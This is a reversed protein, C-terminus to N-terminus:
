GRPKGGQGQAWSRFVTINHLATPPDLDQLHFFNPSRRPYEPVVAGPDMSLYLGQSAYVLPKASDVGRIQDPFTTALSWLQPLDRGWGLLHIPLNPALRLVEEVLSVLGGEWVEYDKSVGLATVGLDVLGELCCFYEQRTRGQPVGMLRLSSYKPALYQYAETSLALTDDGFFVRDPLVVEQPALLQIATALRGLNLGEGFEHASNDLIVYDGLVRRQRYFNLYEGGELIQHALTLHYNDGLVAYEKLLPTPAIIAVRM